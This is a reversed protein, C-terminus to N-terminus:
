ESSSESGRTDNTLRGSPWSRSSGSRLSAATARSMHNERPNKLPRSSPLPSITIESRRIPNSSPSTNENTTPRRSPSAISGAGTRRRGPGSNGGPVHSGRAQGRPSTARGGGVAGSGGCGMCDLLLTLFEAEQAGPAGACRSLPRTGHRCLAVSPPVRRPRGCSVSDPSAAGMATSQLLTLFRSLASGRRGSGRLAPLNDRWGIM